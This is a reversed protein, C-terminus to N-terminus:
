RISEADEDDDVDEDLCCRALYEPDDDGGVMNVGCALVVSPPRIDM